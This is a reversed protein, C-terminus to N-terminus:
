LAATARSSSSRSFLEVGFFSLCRCQIVRRELISQHNMLHLAILSEVAIDEAFDILHTDHTACWGIFLRSLRRPRSRGGFWRAWLFDQSDDAGAHTSEEEANTQCQQEVTEIICELVRILDFRESASGQM